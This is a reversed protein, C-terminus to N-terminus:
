GPRNLFEKLLRNTERQEELLAEMIRIGEYDRQADRLKGTRGGATDLLSATRYKAAAPDVRQAWKKANERREDDTKKGFGM